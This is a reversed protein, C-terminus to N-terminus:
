RHVRPLRLLRTTGRPGPQIRVLSGPHSDLWVLRPRGGVVHGREYGPAQGRWVRTSAAAQDGASCETNVGPSHSAQLGYQRRLPTAEPCLRSDRRWRRLDVQNNSRVAIPDPRSERDDDPDCKREPRCTDGSALPVAEEAVEHEADEEERRRQDDGVEYAVPRHSGHSSRIRAIAM